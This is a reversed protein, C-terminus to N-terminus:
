TDNLFSIYWQISDRFHNITDEELLEPKIGEAYDWSGDTFKVEAIYKLDNYDQYTVNFRDNFPRLKCIEWYPKKDIEM